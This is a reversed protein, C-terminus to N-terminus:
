LYSLRPRVGEGAEGAVAEPEDELDCERVRFETALRKLVSLVFDLQRDQHSSMFATRILAQGRPVAPYVAPLAFVGAEFLARSKGACSTGEVVVVGPRGSGAVAEVSNRVKRMKSTGLHFGVVDAAFEKIEEAALAM